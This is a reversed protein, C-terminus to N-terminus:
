QSSKALEDQLAQAVKMAKPNNALNQALTSSEFPGKDPTLQRKVRSPSFPQNPAFPPHDVHDLAGQAAEAPITVTPTVKVHGREPDWRYGDADPASEPPTVPQPTENRRTELEQQLVQTPSAADLTSQSNSYTSFPRMPAASSATSSSSTPAKMRKRFATKAPSSTSSEAASPTGSDSPISAPIDPSPTSPPEDLIVAKRAAMAARFVKPGAVVATGTGPPLGMQHAAFEAAGAGTITGPHSAAQAGGKIAAGVGRAQRGVAAAVEPSTAAETIAPAAKAGILQTALAATDAIAGKYDGQASKNGAENLLAGVGPIGNLFYNLAHQVGEAHNGKSFSDKAQNWLDENQKGYGNITDVPHAIAHALGQAATMPNVRKWYQNLTDGIEDLASAKKPEQYDGYQSLDSWNSPQAPDGGKYAHGQQVTGAPPQVTGYESLDDAM